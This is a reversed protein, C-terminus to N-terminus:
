SRQGLCWRQWMWRYAEALFRTFRLGDTLPSNTMRERLGARLRGLGEVDHAWRTAIDVYADPAGAVWDDLGLNSLLAVGQRSVYSEGALTVVPVGMWLADCTTVGGNYPFPDLAIDMEQYLALYRDRPRRGLLELRARDIGHQGFLDHLRQDAQSGAGTLLVLRSGPVARLLESWLAIAQPTIKALNNLSGFTVHGAARAPLPTVEPAALPRYCWAVEPLRVLEETHYAETRGPPDAYRDSIRYDMTSLGTTNPYGFHTVQVPAPKRAFVLLRNCATHGALDVLIDTSDAQILDAVQADSRGPLDRWADALTQLHRTVGDPRAVDAYCTVHFRSRDHHALVPTLFSAVPHERLDPSVYGVRLPRDPAPDNAYPRAEAALPAAHREAWRRHELFLTQPDPQPLYAL